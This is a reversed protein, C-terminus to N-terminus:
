GKDANIREIGHAKGIEVDLGEAQPHGVAALRPPLRQDKEAAIDARVMPDGDGAPAAIPHGLFRIENRRAERSAGRAM